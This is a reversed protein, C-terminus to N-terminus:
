LGSVRRLEKMRKKQQECTMSTIVREYPKIKRQQCYGIMESYSPPWIENGTRVSDRVRCELNKVGRALDERNLGAEHIKRCWREFTKTYNGDQDHIEIGSSKCKNQFLDALLEFLNLCM